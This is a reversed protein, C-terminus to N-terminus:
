VARRTMGWDWLGPPVVTGMDRAVRKCEEVVYLKPWSQFKGRLEFDRIFVLCALMNLDWGEM